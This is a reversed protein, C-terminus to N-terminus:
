LKQRSWEYVYIQLKGQVGLTVEDSFVDKGNEHRAVCQIITGNHEEISQISIISDCNRSCKTSFSIDIDKSHSLNVAPTHNIYWSITNASILSQCHFQVSSGLTANM